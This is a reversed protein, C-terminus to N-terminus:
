GVPPSQRTRVLVGKDVSIIVVARTDDGRIELREFDGLPLAQEIRQARQSLFEFFSVWVHPNRCQWQHLVEGQTSCVLFEEVQPRFTTAASELRADPPVPAPVAVVPPPPAPPTPTVAPRTAVSPGAPSEAAEDRKRAAEMLLFEWPGAISRAPPESFPKLNFQGGSLAMLRNFAEEGSFEGVEAHVIQGVEVFIRGSLQANSIELVSSSRALCEMQLVDPLGVRRLVGRFGEEPKFRALEDLVTFLNGWGSENVPKELFLDAGNSLCAARYKENVQGTLVAKQVNPYGRNLLSLMQVGDMVGMQLDLVILDVPQQQLINFASSASDATSVDWEGGSFATMLGKITELFQPDDDVFLVRRLTPTLTSM